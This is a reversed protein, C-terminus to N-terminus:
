AAEALTKTEPVGLLVAEIDLLIVLKDGVKALGQIAASSMSNGFDPSPQIDQAPISMVESVRDVIMGMVRDKVVVVVIATFQDYVIEALEFKRRLDLIPVVTGRLNLVGVVEPPSGPVRTTPLNGKIEQVRLIDIGYEETDLTFTLYQNNEGTAGDLYNLEAGDSAQSGAMHKVVGKFKCGAYRM